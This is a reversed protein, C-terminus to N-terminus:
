GRKGRQDLLRHGLEVELGVLDLELRGGLIAVGDTELRDYLAHDDVRLHSIAWGFGSDRHHEIKATFVFGGEDFFEHRHEPGLEGQHVCFINAVERRIHAPNPVIYDAEQGGVHGHRATASEHLLEYGKMKAARIGADNALEAVADVFVEDDGVVPHGHGLVLDGFSVM